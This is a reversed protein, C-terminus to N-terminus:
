KVGIVVNLCSLFAQGRHSLKELIAHQFSFLRHCVFFITNFMALKRNLFHFRAINVTM